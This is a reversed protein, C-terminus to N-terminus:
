KNICEELKFFKLIFMIFVSSWKYIRIKEFIDLVNLDKKNFNGKDQKKKSLSFNVITIWSM